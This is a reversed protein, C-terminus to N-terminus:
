LGASTSQPPTFFHKIHELSVFMACNWCGLRMFNATFGKYFAAPGEQSVINLVLKALNTSQGEVPNMMRTKLVDVPSGVITANLGAGFACAVHTLTGDKMGYNQTLIQKYQDYSAIEAANVISNRM